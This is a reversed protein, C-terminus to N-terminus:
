KPAGGTYAHPVTAYTSCDAVRSSPRSTLTTGDAFSFTTKALQYIAGPFVAAMALLLWGTRGARAFFLTWLAILFALALGGVVSGAVFTLGRGLRNLM